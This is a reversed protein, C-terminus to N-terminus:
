DKRVRSRRRVSKRPKRAPRVAEAPTDAQPAPGEIQGAEGSTGSPDVPLVEKIDGVKITVQHIDRLENAKVPDDIEVELIPEVPSTDEREPPPMDLGYLSAIRESAKIIQALLSPNGSQGKRKHTTSGGDDGSTEIVEQADQLSRRWAKWAEQKLFVMEEAEQQRMRKHAASLDKEARSVDENLWRSVTGNHVGLRDAIEQESLHMMRLRVARTKLMLRRKEAAKKSTAAM